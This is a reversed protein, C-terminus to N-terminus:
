SIFQQTGRSAAEGDIPTDPHMSLTAFLRLVQSQSTPFWNDYPFSLYKRVGADITIFSPASGDDIDCDFWCIEDNARTSACLFTLPTLIESLCTGRDRWQPSTRHSEKSVRDMWRSQPNHTPSSYGPWAPSM